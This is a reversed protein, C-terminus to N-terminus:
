PQELHRTFFEDITRQARAAEATGNGARGPKLFGHGTGLFSDAAFSKQLAAMERIIMPLQANVRGDNQGYVGLVPAQVSRLLTSDALPGYCVVAAKLNPNAAAYRWVTGGGWCFGIAGIRDPNAAPRATVYKATADLDANVGEPSLLGVLKRASDSEAPSPGFRSSVLDPAIAIYGKKAYDDAVTPEWDTLGFIEHIVIIVPAKGAREPYAVYARISDGQANPYRVWEGHTTVADLPVPAHDSRNITWMLGAGLALGATLAALANPIAFGRRTRMM